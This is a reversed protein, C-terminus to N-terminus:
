VKFFVKNDVPHGIYNIGYPNLPHTETMFPTDGMRVTSYGKEHSSHENTSQSM